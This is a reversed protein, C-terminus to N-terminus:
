SEEWIDVEARNRDMQSSSPTALELPPAGQPNVAGLEQAEHGRHSRSPLSEQPCPGKGRGHPKREKQDTGEAGPQKRGERSRDGKLWLWEQLGGKGRREMSSVRFPMVSKPFSNLFWTKWLTQRPIPIEFPETTFFGGALSPSKTRDRPQFVGHLLFHCGVGPNKDPSDGPVCSGPLSYDMSHCLTPCTKTNLCCCTGQFM